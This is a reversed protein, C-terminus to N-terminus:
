GAIWGIVVAGAWTLGAFLAALVVFGVLGIVAMALWLVLDIVREM